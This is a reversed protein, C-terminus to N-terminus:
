KLSSLRSLTYPMLGTIGVIAILLAVTDEVNFAFSGKLLRCFLLYFAAAWGSVSGIFNLWRQHFRWCPLAQKGKIFANNTDVFIDVAKFSYFLSFCIGVLSFVIKAVTM